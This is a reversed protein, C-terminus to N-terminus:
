ASKGDGGKGNDRERKEQEAKREAAANKEAAKKAREIFAPDKSTKAIRSAAGTDMKGDSM